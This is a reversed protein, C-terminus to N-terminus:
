VPIVNILLSILYSLINEPHVKLGKMLVPAFSASPTVMTGPVPLALAQAYSHPMVCNVFFVTLIILVLVKRMYDKPIILGRCNYITSGSFANKYDWSYLIM